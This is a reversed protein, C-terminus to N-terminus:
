AQAILAVKVNQAPEKKEIYQTLLTVVADFDKKNKNPRVRVAIVAISM